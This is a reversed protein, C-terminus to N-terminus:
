LLTLPFTPAFLFAAAALMNKKYFRDKIAAVARIELAFPDTFAGVLCLLDGVLVVTFVFASALAAVAALKSLNHFM